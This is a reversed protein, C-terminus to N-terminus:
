HAFRLKFSGLFTDVTDQDIKQVPGVVLLQFAWTDSAILRGTMRLSANTQIASFEESLMLKGNVTATSVKEETVTGSLNNLLAKKMLTIALRAQTADPRQVAGIAFKVGDIQVATMHMLVPHAGFQVERSLRSPKGPMLAVYPAEKGPVERWDYKPSCATIFLVIFFVAMLKSAFPKVTM